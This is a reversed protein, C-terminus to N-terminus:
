KGFRKNIDFARQEADSMKNGSGGVQTSGTSNGGNNQQALCAAKGSDSKAWEAIHESQTKEGIMAKGDIIKSQSKFLGEYGASHLPNVRLETFQARIGDTILRVEEGQRYTQNETTLAEFIANNAEDKLRDAEAWDNAAKAKEIQNNAESAELALLKSREATTLDDKTSVKGLLEANKDSLGKALANIKDLADPLTLDIDNLGNLM